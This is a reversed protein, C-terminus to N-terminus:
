GLGRSRRAVAAAPRALPTGGRRRHCARGRADTEATVGMAGLVARLTAAPVEVRDGFFSWYSTAVGRSEALAVLAATPADAETTGSM